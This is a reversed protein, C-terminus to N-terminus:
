NTQLRKSFFQVDGSKVNYEMLVKVAEDMFVNAVIERLSTSDIPSDKLVVDLTKQPIIEFSGNEYSVKHVDNGLPTKLDIKEIRVVLNPGVYKKTQTAPM